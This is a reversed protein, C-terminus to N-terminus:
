EVIKYKRRVNKPWDANFHWWENSIAVFGARLMIERLLLRNALQTASLQHHRYLRMEHRPQALQGFFDFDTGMDLAEGKADALGLDIACGYNHMSGRKVPDAVYTQQPTGKVVQWMQLQVRRPRLCDYAIFHLGPARQKLLADARRLKQAADQQLVCARLDRYLVKHTFNNPGAYRLDLQLSPIVKKVDILGSKDSVDLWAPITDNRQTPKLRTQVQPQQATKNPSKATAPTANQLMMSSLSIATILHLM